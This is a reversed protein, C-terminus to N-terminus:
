QVYPSKAIVLPQVCEGVIVCACERQMCESACVAVWLGVRHCVREDCVCHCASVHIHKCLLCVCWACVGDCVSSVSVYM